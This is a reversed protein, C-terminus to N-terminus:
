DHIMVYFVYGYSDPCRRYLDIERQEGDLVALAQEDARYKERLEAIRKEMPEYYSDWWASEPLTFQGVARYGAADILKLNGAIDTMAPYGEDFFTRAEEAPDPRLWTLETAALFGGKKLLPRLTELGTGFGLFYLSGEAWILDFSAAPFELTGMDACVIEIRDLVGAERAREELQDLFPQHTDVAVISGACSGALDITQMGPGCGADLIRPARPLGTAMEFARRTSASNGPGERPLGSHIEFFLEMSM